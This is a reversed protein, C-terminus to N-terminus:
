RSARPTHFDCLKGSYGPPPVDPKGGRAPWVKFGSANIMRKVRDVIFFYGEEDYYGLDGTRFFRKGDLDIFAKQTEKPRKWYGQFVQPGHTIIEGM